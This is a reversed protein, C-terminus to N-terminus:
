SMYIGVIIIINNNLVNIYRLIAFFSRLHPRHNYTIWFTFNGLAESLMDTFEGPPLVMCHSIQWAQLM